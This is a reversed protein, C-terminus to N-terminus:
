NLEHEILFKVEHSSPFGPFELISCKGDPRTVTVVAGCSVCVIRLPEADVLAFGDAAAAASFDEGWAILQKRRADFALVASPNDTDKALLRLFDLAQKRGTSRYCDDSLGFLYEPLFEAAVPTYM